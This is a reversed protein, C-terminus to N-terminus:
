QDPNLTWRLNFSLEHDRVAAAIQEDGAPILVGAQEDVIELTGRDRLSAVWVAPDVGGDALRASHCELFVTSGASRAITEALGAVALAEAGEIDIKAVDFGRGDMVEDLTVCAVEIVHDERDPPPVTGSQDLAFHILLPASGPEAAAAAEILEVRDDFGNASINRRLATANPPTPEVAIVKGEPGAARAALLTLVGIHAGCDLVVAGPEIADVFLGVQFPHVVSGSIQRLYTGHEALSGSVTLGDIDVEYQDSGFRGLMRRVRNTVPLFGHRELRDAVTFGAKLVRGRISRTGSM